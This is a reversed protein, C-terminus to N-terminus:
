IEPNLTDIFTKLKKSCMVSLYENIYEKYDEESMKHKEMMFKKLPIGSQSAILTDFMLISVINGTMLTM